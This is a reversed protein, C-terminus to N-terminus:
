YRQFGNARDYKTASYHYFAVPKPKHREVARLLELEEQSTVGAKIWKMPTEIHREVVGRGKRQYSGKDYMIDKLEEEVNEFEVHQESDGYVYLMRFTDLPSFNNKHDGMMAFVSEIVRPLYLMLIVEARPPLVRNKFSGVHDLYNRVVQLTQESSEVM